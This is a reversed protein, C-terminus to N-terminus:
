GGVLGKIMGGLRIGLKEWSHARLWRDQFEQKSKLRDPDLLLQEIGVAIDNPSTGPLTHVIDKVDSFIDLPTCVVPCRSALGYRVAGSASEATAQYPFVIMSATDLLAFSEEDKLFDTIMTVKNELKNAKILEQCRQKTNDSVIDSYLANVMLLHLNSHTKKLIAFAEILQELGKHPLMFGYSAIITKQPPIKSASLRNLVGHPFLATNEYLGRSKFLNLDEIGHMLLRDVRALSHTVPALSAELGSIEVDKTSHFFIIMIIDHEKAFWIIKELHKPSFFAFNFQLVLANLSEKAMVSLLAEIDGKCNTWCRHVNIEDPQSIMDPSSAFIKIQFDDAPLAATLFKSYTAIGCKSNWSSIWGLRIKKGCLPKTERIGQELEKLRNVCMDWTFQEKILKKAADLRPKLKERAAFRVQEMLQGLHIVDPEMWVSSFLEMHTDASQFTFDILWSTDKTCFDSQGGYATTIVPIGHWMAEAMPLGFGEGRSPAVLADCQRYLDAIESMALDKNIIEISPCDPFKKKLDEVQEEITNHINPFSKIVLSVDDKATFTRAFALLLLDVGKRPFCSSIHLFKYAAKVQLPYPKIEQDGNQNQIHDIGCGAATIPLYVGNDILVKKIFKSLVPLGDLSQNFAQTWEFPLQSEEWAFYFLNIQGDMDTVRPPYLNRIVVDARSAKSGKKWLKEIGAISQIADMDPNYDGPGETAFLGVSGPDKRDLGLAIERNVLALSYSTEFPGEVQYHIPAFKFDTGFDPNPIDIKQEKLFAYLQKALQQKTFQSVHEQQDKILARKMARDRSLIKILAAIRPHDKKTILVGAGGMTYPINSSKYAVVPVDFAMAEILPVGFGEHESMGLFLDAARYWAYLKSDPIKGTFRVCDELGASKIQASLKRYYSDIKTYGGVLILQFPRSLMTKLYGAITILDEQCKNPAIRGVFLITYIGSSETVISEDWKQNKITDIDLLLPIEKVNTYGLGRLEDANFKSDCIISEMIPLFLKLQKRGLSSYHRFRYNDTFFHAPTINHYVLIKRGALGTVWKELDHGMSHHILIVDDKKLKLKKYSRLENKLEPAIREVYIKSNFGFTLLLSRILRMSNTVADGYASGSHFQHISIKKM